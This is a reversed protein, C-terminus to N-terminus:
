FVVSAAGTARDLARHVRNSERLLGVRIFGAEDSNADITGLREADSLCPFLPLLFAPDHRYPGVCTYLVPNLARSIAMFTENLRAANEGTAEVSRSQLALIAKEFEDIRWITPAFDWRDGATKALTEVAERMQRAVPGFNFPLSERTLLPWLVALYLRTDRVLLDRDAKDLSDETTHWWYGYASGGADKARDPHDAPIAPYLTVSPLGIGWFSEDNYRMSRISGIRTGMQTELVAELYEKAEFMGEPEIATASRVGPSDIAMYAIGNEHLDDFFHDAYWTSGAYRGTSHGPWWAVRLSRRLSGRHEHVVRAIELLSANGTASDTVGEHWSDLHNAILVFREPEVTGRIEAVLLPITKWATDTRAQLRATVTDEELLAELRRGDKENVTVIPIGPFKGADAPTPNGWVPSVIMNVLRPSPAICVAGIAGAREAMEILEPSPYGRLLVIRERGDVGSFDEPRTTVVAPDRPGIYILPATLGGDTTSTSFSPTIVSLGFREPAIMELSASVPVSLYTRIEHMRYPVGFRALASELQEAARREGVSSSTRDIESFSEVIPWMADAKVDALVADMGAEGTHPAPGQQCGALLIALSIQLASAVVTAEVRAM